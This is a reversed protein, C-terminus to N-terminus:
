HATASQHYCACETHRPGHAAASPVRLTGAVKGPPHRAAANMCHHCEGASVCPLGRIASFLAVFMVQCSPCTVRASRAVSKFCFPAVSQNVPRDPEPLLVM